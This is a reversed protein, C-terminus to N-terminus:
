GNIIRGGNPHIVQGTIFAADECALFLYSPAVEVPEGSRGVLTGSGFQRVKEESFSAPILPTWVPGPAVGNVRIGKDALSVALSRTLATIAGKTASYPILKPHGQYATVSTSNVIASGEQMHPLAAQIFYFMSYVNTRFTRDLQEPAIDTVAEYAHQEGANNVLIDLRGYEAVTKEVVEACFAPEGVDGSFLRCRRGTAEVREKTEGADRHEDLYVIAVDAGEKAFLISVARGIGSDGGTIIATKGKLKGSPVYDDRETVPLPTMESREGPQKEQHQPPQLDKESM